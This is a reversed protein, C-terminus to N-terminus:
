AMPVRQPIRKPEEAPLPLCPMGSLAPLKTRVVTPPDPEFGNSRNQTEFFGTIAGAQRETVGRQAVQQYVRVFERRHWEAKRELYSAFDHWPSREADEVYTLDCFQAWAGDRITAATLADEFHVSKYSHVRGVASMAEKYALDARTELTMATAIPPAGALERITAPAPAFKCTAGATKFGREIQEDTLGALADTFMELADPDVEPRPPLRYLKHILEELRAPTM